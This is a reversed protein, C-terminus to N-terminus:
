NQQRNIPIIEARSPKLKTCRTSIDLVYRSSGIIMILQHTAIFGFQQPVRVRPPRKHRLTRSWPFSDTASNNLKARSVSNQDNRANRMERPGFPRTALNSSTRLPSRQVAAPRRAGFDDRNISLELFSRAWVWIVSFDTM